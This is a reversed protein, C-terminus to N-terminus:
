GNAITWFEDFFYAGKRGKRESFDDIEDGLEAVEIAKVVGNMFEILFSEDSWFHGIDIWGNLKVNVAGDNSRRILGNSEIVYSDHGDSTLSKTQWGSKIGKPIHPFDQDFNITDFCSM